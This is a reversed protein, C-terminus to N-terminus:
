LKFFFSCCRIIKSYFSYNISKNSRLWV